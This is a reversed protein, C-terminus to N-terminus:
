SIKGFMNNITGRQRCWKRESSRFQWTDAALLWHEARRDRGYKVVVSGNEQSIVATGVKLLLARADRAVRRQVPAIRIHGGNDRLARGFATVHVSSACDM